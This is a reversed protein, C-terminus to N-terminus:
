LNAVVSFIHLIKIYRAHKATESQEQNYTSDQMGSPSFYDQAVCSFSASCFKLQIQQIIKLLTDGQVYAADAPRCIPAIGSFKLAM